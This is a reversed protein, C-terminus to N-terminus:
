ESRDWWHGQVWACFRSFKWGYIFFAITTSARSRGWGLCSSPHDVVARSLRWPRLHWFRIKNTWFDWDLYWILFVPFSKHHNLVQKKKDVGLHPHPHPLSDLQLPSLLLPFSLFSICTHGPLLLTRVRQRLHKPVHLCPLDGTEM